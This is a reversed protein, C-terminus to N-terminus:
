FTAAMPEPTLIANVKALRENNSQELEAYGPMRKASERALEAAKKLRGDNLETCALEFIQRYPDTSKSTIVKDLPALLTTVAEDMFADCGLDDQFDVIFFKVNKFGDNKTDIINFFNGSGKPTGLVLKTGDVKLPQWGLATAANILDAALPTTKGKGFKFM